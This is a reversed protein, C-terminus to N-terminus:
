IIQHVTNELRPWHRHKLSSNPGGGCRAPAWLQQRHGGKGDGDQSNEPPKTLSPLSHLRCHLRRDRHRTVESPKERRGMFDCPHRPWTNRRQSRPRVPVRPLLVGGPLADGSEFLLGRRPGRTRFAFDRHSTAPAHGTRQSKGDSSSISLPSANGM